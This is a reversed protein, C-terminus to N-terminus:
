SDWPKTEVRRRILNQYFDFLERDQAQGWVMASRSAELGVASTKSM